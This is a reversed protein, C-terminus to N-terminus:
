WVTQWPHASAHLGGFGHALDNESPCAKLKINAPLELWEGIKPIPSGDRLTKGTFHYYNM